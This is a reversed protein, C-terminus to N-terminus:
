RIKLEDIAYKVVNEWCELGFGVGKQVRKLEYINLKRGIRKKAIRQVDEVPITFVNKM